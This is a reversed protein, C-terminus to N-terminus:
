SYEVLSTWTQHTLMQSTLLWDFKKVIIQFDFITISIHSKVKNLYSVSGIYLQFYTSTVTFGSYGLEGMVYKNESGEPFESTIINTEGSM